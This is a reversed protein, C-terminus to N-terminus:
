IHNDCRGTIANMQPFCKHMVYQTYKEVSIPTVGFIFSMSLFDPVGSVLLFCTLENLILIPYYSFLTIYSNYINLNSMLYFDGYM